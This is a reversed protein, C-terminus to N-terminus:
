VALGIAQRALKGFQRTMVWGLGLVIAVIALNPKFLIAAGLVFGALPDRARAPGRSAIWLYLALFAVQVRNVNGAIVEDGFPKFWSSVFFLACLAIGISSYDLM